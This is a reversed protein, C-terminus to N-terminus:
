RGWGKRASGIVAGDPALVLVAHRGLGRTVFVVSRENRGVLLKKKERLAAGAEGSLALLTLAAEDAPALARCAPCTEAEMRCQGCYGAQCTTCPALPSCTCLRRGCGLCEVTDAACVANGCSDCTLVHEACLVTGCVSCAQAHRECLPSDCASCTRTHEPCLLESCVRCASTHTTCATAGCQTCLEVCGICLAQDGEVCSWLHDGCHVNGCGECKAACTGCLVTGCTACAAEFMEACEPCAWADCTGCHTACFVCVLHGKACVQGAEVERGCTTCAPFYVTGRGLDVALRVEAGGHFPFGIYTVPSRVFCVRDLRADVEVGFAEVLADLERALMADVEGGLEPSERRLRDHTTTVDEVRRSYEPVSRTQLFVAAAELAPALTEQVARLSSEIQEGTAEDLAVARADALQEYTLLARPARTALAFARRVVEDTRGRRDHATVTFTCEVSVEDDVQLLVPAPLPAAWQLVPRGDRLPCVACTPRGQAAAEGGHGVCRGCGQAPAIWASRAMRMADADRVQRLVLGSLRERAACEDLLLALATGGEVLLTMEEDARARALSTTYRRSEGSLLTVALVDDEEVQVRAGSAALYEQAFRLMADSLARRPVPVHGTQAARAPRPMTATATSQKAHQPSQQSTAAADDKRRWFLLRM